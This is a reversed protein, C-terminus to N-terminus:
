LSFDHSAATFAKLCQDRTSKSINRQIRSKGLGKLFRSDPSTFTRSHIDPLPLPEMVTRFSLRDESTSSKLYLIRLNRDKEAEDSVELVPDKNPLLLNTPLIAPLKNIIHTSAKSRDVANSIPKAEDGVAPFLSSHKGRFLKKWNELHLWGM